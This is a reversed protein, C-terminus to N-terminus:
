VNIVEMILKVLKILNSDSCTHRFNLLSYQFFDTESDFAEVPVSIFMNDSKDKINISEQDNFLIELKNNTPENSLSNIKLTYLNRKGFGNNHIRISSTGYSLIVDNNEHSKTHYYVIGNINTCGNKQLLDKHLVAVEILEDLTTTRTNNKSLFLSIM